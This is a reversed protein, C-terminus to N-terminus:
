PSNIERPAGQDLLQGNLPPALADECRCLECGRTPDPQCLMRTMCRTNRSEPCVNQGALPGACAGLFLALGMGLVLRM